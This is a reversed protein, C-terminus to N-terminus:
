ELVGAIALDTDVGCQRTKLSRLGTAIWADLLNGVTGVDGASLYVTGQVPEILTAPDGPNRGKPFPVLVINM